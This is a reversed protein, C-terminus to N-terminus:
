DNILFVSARQESLAQISCDENPKLNEPKNEKEKKKLDSVSADSRSYM